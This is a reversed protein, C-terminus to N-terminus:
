QLLALPLSYVFQPRSVFAALADREQEGSGTVGTEFRPFRCLLLAM